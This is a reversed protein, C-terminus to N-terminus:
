QRLGRTSKGLVPLAAVAMRDPEDLAKDVGFAEGGGGISGSMPEVQALGGTAGALIPLALDLNRNLGDPDFWEM